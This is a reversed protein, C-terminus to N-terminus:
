IWPVVEKGINACREIRHGNGLITLGEPNTARSLAVYLMSNQAFWDHTLAIQVHPLSLGQTKHVTLAYALKIPFYSLEGVVWREEYFDYYPAAYVKRFSNSLIMMRTFYEEDSEGSLQEPKPCPPEELYDKDYNKRTVKKMRVISGFSKEDAKMGSTANDMKLVLENCNLSSDWGTIYGQSGNAYEGSKNALTMVYADKCLIQWDPIEKWEGPQKGWRKAQLTIQEKGEAILQKLRIQNYEDVEKNVAFITTGVFDYTLKSVKNIRNDAYIQEALSDGEGNRASNMIAQFSPDTQRWIKTLKEVEFNPWCDAYFCYDAKVPPLQLFDGLLLLSLNPNESQELGQMIYDLQEKAMMSIEDIVLTGKIRKLTKALQGRQLRQKLSDTDYYKLLSNITVTGPGMNIAAIGTTAAVIFEDESEQMQQKLKHTKGTGAAGTLFKHM